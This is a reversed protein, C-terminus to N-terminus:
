PPTPRPEPGVHVLEGADTTVWLTGDRALLPFGSVLGGLEIREVIEGSPTIVALRGRRDLALTTHAADVVLPGHFPADTSAVWRQTGEPALCVVGLAPIAVRYSGDDDRALMASQDFVRGGVPVHTTVRSGHPVVAISGLALLVHVTGDDDVVPAAVARDGLDVSSLLSGALDLVHLREGGAVVIRDRGLLAPPQVLGATLTVAFIPELMADFRAVTRDLTTVVISGDALVLPSGRVGASARAERVVAGHRDIVLVRGDRTAILLELSPLVVPRADIPGLLLTRTHGSPERIWLGDAAGVAIGVEAWEVPASSRRTSTPARDLVRHRGGEFTREVRGDREPGGLDVAAPSALGSRLTVLHGPEVRQGEVPASALALGLVLLGTHGARGARHEARAV